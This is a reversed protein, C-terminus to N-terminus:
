QVPNFPPTQPPTPPVPPTSVPDPAQVPAVPQAKQIITPITTGPRKELRDGIAVEEYMGSSVQWSFTEGTDSKIMLSYSHTVAVTNPSSLGFGGISINGARNENAMRNSNVHESMMRDIVVGTWNADKRKKNTYLVFGIVGVVIVSILIIVLTNNDM